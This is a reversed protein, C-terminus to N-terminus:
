AGRKRFWLWDLSFRGPGTFLLCASVSAYLLSKERPELDMGKYRLFAAVLMTGLVMFAGPRTLLGLVLLIGGILEALVAAWAFFEPAPFGLREILDIFSQDPPLKEFGHLWAMGAGVLVRMLLLGVDPAFPKPSVLLRGLARLPGPM